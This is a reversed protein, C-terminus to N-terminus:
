INMMNNKVWFETKGSIAGLNRNKILDDINDIDIKEDLIKVKYNFKAFIYETKKYVKNTSWPINLFFEKLFDKKNFGLLYYGGDDSPGIVANNEDLSEFADDFLAKSINILDSGIILVKEYGANFSTQFANKMREGLNGESQVFYKNKGLWKKIPKEADGPTYYILIDYGSKKLVSLIDEIFCKYLNCAQNDGISKALRTKVKGPVPQKIFFIIANKMEKDKSM